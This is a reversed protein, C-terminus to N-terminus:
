RRHFISYRAQESRYSMSYPRRKVFPRLMAKFDPDASAIRMAGWDAQVAMGTPSDKRLLLTISRLICAEEIQKPIAPWGFKAIVQLGARRDYLPFSKMGVAVIKWFACPDAADAAANLPWLSFDTNITWTTEYIGDNNDDTKIILGTITSIDDVYVFSNDECFYTRTQVAADQWFRRSKPVDGSCTYDIERSAANIAKCILDSSVVANEDRLEARIQAETCYANVLTVPM